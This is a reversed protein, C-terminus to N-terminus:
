LKPTGPTRGLAKIAQEVSRFSRDQGLVENVGFRAM